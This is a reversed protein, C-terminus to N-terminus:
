LDGQIPRSAACGRRAIMEDLLAVATEAYLLENLHADIEIIEIEPNLLKKLEEGFVRNGEPDYLPAGEKDAESWGRLPILVKVPGRARNLREAMMRAAQILEQENPRACRRFDHYYLKRGQFRAPIEEQAIAISDLGGPGVVLPIGRRGATELREPGIDGCLGGALHDMFEHTTLDLVGAFLGRAVLEEMATGGSGVAHFIVAEYGKDRLLRAAHTACPTTIGFDTVAILPTGKLVGHSDRPIHEDAEADVMGCIAGAARTLIASTVPNLGVIDAVSQMLTIDKGDVFRSMDGAIMSSLVLKPVGIPIAQMIATGMFLATGGGLAIIGDLGGGQYLERAKRRAGKIMINVAQQRDGADLAAQLSMGSARVVEERPIDAPLGHKGRTGIDMVATRHGRREIENKLFGVEAGKTDFTGIVLIWGVMRMIDKDV